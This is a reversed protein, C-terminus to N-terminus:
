PKIQKLIEINPDFCASQQTNQQHFLATIDISDFQYCENCFDCNITIHGQEQVMQQADAEGLMFIVNKMKQESCRCKFQVTRNPFIRLDTEHYLRHLLTQNDLTLLEQAQLTQGIALAYEWFQEQQQTNKDPMLQLMVGSVHHESTALWVQNTIQESQILYHMLNDSMSASQIPVISQYSTSQHATKLTLSLTGKLFAQTYAEPHLSDTYTATARLTLENDCQVVLLSLRDDGHFQLSLQGEFKISASLFLCCMMAEGLLTQIAPPYPRQNIITQYTESLHVIYGRINAHEFLFAQISDRDKM